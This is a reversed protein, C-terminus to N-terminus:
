EVRLYRHRGGPEEEVQTRTETEIVTEIETGIVTETENETTLHVAPHMETLEHVDGKETVQVQMHFYM